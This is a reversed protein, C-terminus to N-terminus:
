DRPEEEAQDKLSELLPTMDELDAWVEEKVYMPAGFRVALAMADSPRSDIDIIKRHAVENEMELYTRAFYVEDEYDVIVMKTMRAGLAELSQYFLDHTMPRVTDEGSIQDNIAQGIHLDIFFHIIKEGDGLFVACGARTPILAAINLEVLM